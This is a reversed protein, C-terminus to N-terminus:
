GKWVGCRCDIKLDGVSRGERSSRGARGYVGEGERERGRVEEGTDWPLEPREVYQTMETNQGEALRGRPDRSPQGQQACLLPPWEKARPLRSALDVASLTGSDSDFKNQGTESATESAERKM